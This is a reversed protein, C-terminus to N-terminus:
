FSLSLGSRFLLGGLDIQDVNLTEMLEKSMGYVYYKMRTSNEWNSIKNDRSDRHYNTGEAFHYSLDFNLAIIKYGFSFGALAHYGIPNTNVQFNNTLQYNYTSAHAEAEGYHGEIKNKLTTFYFGFGGGGYISFSTNGSLLPLEYLASVLMPRITAENQLQWTATVWESVNPYYREVFFTASFQTAAQTQFDSLSLSIKFEPTFYYSMGGGWLYESQLLEYNGAYGTEPYEGIVVKYQYSEDVAGTYGTTTMTQYLAKIGDNLQKLSPRYLGSNVFFQIQTHGPNQARNLQPPNYTKNLPSGANSIGQVLFLWCIGFSLVWLIKKM